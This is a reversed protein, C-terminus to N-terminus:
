PNEDVLETDAKLNGGSENLSKLNNVQDEATVFCIHKSFFQRTM